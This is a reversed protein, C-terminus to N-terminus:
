KSVGQLWYESVPQYEIWSQDIKEQKANLVMVDFYTERFDISHEGEIEIKVPVGYRRDIRLIVRKGDVMYHLSPQITKSNGGISITQINDEVLIPKQDAFEELWEIPGKHTWKEFSTSIPKDIYDKCRSREYDFSKELLRGEREINCYAVAEKKDLDVFVDTIPNGDLEYLKLFYHRVKNGYIIVVRDDLLYALGTFKKRAETLLQQGIEGTEPAVVVEKKEPPCQELSEATSGDWCQVVVKEVVEKVIQPKPQEVTVNEQVPVAPVCAILLLLLLFLQKM